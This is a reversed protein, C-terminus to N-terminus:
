IDEGASKILIKCFRFIEAEESWREEDSAIASETKM